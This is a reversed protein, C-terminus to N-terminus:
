MKTGAFSTSVNNIFSFIQLTKIYKGDIKISECNETALIIKDTIM